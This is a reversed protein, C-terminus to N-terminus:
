EKEDKQCGDTLATAGRVIEMEDAGKELEM